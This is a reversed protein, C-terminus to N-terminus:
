QLTSFYGVYDYDETVINILYEGPTTLLYQCFSTGDDFTTQCFNGDVDWVEYSIIGESDIESQIGDGSIVAIIPRAPIRVGKPDTDPKHGKKKKSMTVTYEANNQAFSNVPCVILLCLAALLM